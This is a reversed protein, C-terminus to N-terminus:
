NQLLVESDLSAVDRNLPPSGGNAPLRNYASEKVTSDAEM